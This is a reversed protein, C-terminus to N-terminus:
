CKTHKKMIKQAISVYESNQWAKEDGIIYLRYKARTVAVNVINRNVWSIAGSAEKSDDCGLLFIVEKAEKGQFTHVTGINKYMWEQLANQIPSDKHKKCYSHMYERMGRVVTTFPSIIFIDPLEEKRFAVELMECVKEGQAPVFHKKRGQEKGVVNIWQSQDYIFSQVIEPKPIQTQQKMMGNYSITNSIEYMPSICRRHVLLPCGVWDPNDSGNDMFTGFPNMLDACSQVSVNKEKYPHFLEERYTEKLLKLEDTVIPEVQNPDGVIMAKRSRYLAGLAMQPQAQGAEDVVLLGIADSQRVDRFFSNVSAFTTSIVPVLLFLTQILATVFGSEMSEHFVIVEKDDGMLYGWYHGLSKFNDRCAKSSLVFEKNLKIAYYFLKEGERNYLQTTWPNEVHAQTSEEIDKSFIRQIYNEDLAVGSKDISTNVLKRIKTIYKLQIADMDAQAQEIQMNWTVIQKESAAIQRKIHKEENKLTDMRKKFDIYEKNSLSLKEEISERKALNESIMSELQDGKGRYLEALKMADNYKQTKFLKAFLGTSNQVSLVKERIDILQKELSHQEEDLKQLKQEEAEKQLKLEEFATHQATTKELIEKLEPYLIATKKSEGAILTKYKNIREKKRRIEIIRKESIEGYSDLQKQMKTVVDYQKMFANRAEHYSTIRNEITDNKQYFDRLLNNLVKYYFNKKNSKKGLPVAILGWANDINLLENAYETFYIDPVSIKESDWVFLNERDRSKSIDFLNRIEALQERITYPEEGNLNFDDLIRKGVPLEKSINEVAANNCSAILVSYDNIKDDKLCYWHRVYKSYAHEPKTGNQFNQKSFANDPKEYKSLLVAREVINNVVVEKLLTTKGTGPPGNVSFVTGNDECMKRSDKGVLLNIAVQQMLAPMYKSPWKGIPANKMRLIHNIQLEYEELNDNHLVDIRSISEDDIYRKHLAMIYNQMTESLNGYDNEKMIMKIDKSFYDKSLGTYTDDEYKSKAKEDAFMQYMIIFTKEIFVEGHKELSIDQIYKEHIAAYLRDIDAAFIRYPEDDAKKPALIHELIAVDADYLNHNISNSLNDTDKINTVAWLIPSISLSNDIYNGDPTVQFSALAIHDVSTEPRNDEKIGLRAILKKICVERKIKGLYITINGWCDMACDKVQKSVKQMIEEQTIDTFGILQKTNVPKRQALSSKHNKIREIYERGSPWNDQGLFEITYWYELIKHIKGKNIQKQM